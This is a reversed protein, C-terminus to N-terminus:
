FLSRPDVLLGITVFFLAVFADRLPFLQALTQHVYESGSIILGAVFAGLALSLGLTQTLAAAGMCIALVVVFFLEQSHTKAVRALLAPM